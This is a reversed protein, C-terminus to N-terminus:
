WLQYSKTMLVYVGLVFNSTAHAVVCKWLDKTIMLYLNLLVCYFAAAFWEPHASTFLVVVITFSMPSFKGIPVNQWSESMVFRALFGRWFFEEMLPVVAALGLFRVAVFAWATAPTTLEQFPNFAMRKGPQLFEPLHVALRDELHWECLLIWVGIGVLGVVVADLVRGHVTIPKATKLCWWTAVATALVTLSYLLAYSQPVAAALSTGLLYLFFPLVYQLAMHSDATSPQTNNLSDSRSPCDFTSETVLPMQHTLM